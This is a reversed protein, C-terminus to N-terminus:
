NYYERRVRFGTKKTDDRRAYLSELEFKLCTEPFGPIGFIIRRLEEAKNRMEKALCFQYAAGTSLIPHLPSLLDPVDTGSSLNTVDKNYEIRIGGTVVSTFAPYIFISKDGMRYFPDTTSAGVLTNNGLAIGVEKKDFSTGKVFEGAADYKFEVSSLRLLNTPCPYETQGIVSDTTAFEESASWSGMVTFIWGLARRYWININRNLDADPYDTSTLQPSVLYRADTQLESLQM